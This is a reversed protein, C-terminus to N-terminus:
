LPKPGPYGLHSWSPEASFHAAITLERLAQYAQQQVFVPSVRMAQLASAISTKSAATWPEALRALGWRGPAMSLIGLLDSIDGRTAMPLGSVLIDLRNLHERVDVATMVPRIGELMCVAVAGLLSRATPTLHGGQMGPTWNAVGMGLALAGASLASFALM